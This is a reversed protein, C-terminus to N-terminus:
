VEGKATMFENLKIKFTNLSKYSVVVDTLHNWYNVVRRTFFFILLINPNVHRRIKLYFSNEQGKMRM